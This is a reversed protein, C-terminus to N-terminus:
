MISVSCRITEEKDQDGNRKRFTFASIKGGVIIPRTTDYGNSILIHGFGFGIKLFSQTLGNLCYYGVIGFDIKKNM